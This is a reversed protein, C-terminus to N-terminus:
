KKKKKKESVKYNKEFLNLLSFFGGLCDAYTIIMHNGFDDKFLSIIGNEDPEVLIQTRCYNKLTPNEKITGTFGTSHDAILDPSIKVITVKELPMRGAIGIGLGSEFHTTLTYDNCMNLPLTCHAFLIANNKFDVYSPNAQFSPLGTLARLFHMTLLSPVDGECTATYGEENLLALALCSTNKYKGLLDFCRVTLGNLKYKIILRKLASYIYLAGDLVEKNTFKKQLHNFHPIEELQHKDIEKVFEDMSIKILNINFKDKVLVPDVRSAILWDSPEGVVGLNNNNLNKHASIVNFTDKIAEAIQNEEGTFLLCVIDHQGCYTKIELSAPLSNNKGHSLLIIPEKLEPLKKLFLAESGGSEIFVVSFPASADNEVLLLDDNILENNIEEIFDSSEKIADLNSDALSSRLRIVNINM